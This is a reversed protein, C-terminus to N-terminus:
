RSADGAFYYLILGYVLPIGFGLYVGAAVSVLLYRRRSGSFEKSYVAEAAVQNTSDQEM